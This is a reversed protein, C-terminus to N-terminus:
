PTDVMTLIYNSAGAGSVPPAPKKHDGHRHIIELSGQIKIDTWSELLTADMPRVKTMHERM